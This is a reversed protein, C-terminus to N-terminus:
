YSSGGLGKEQELLVRLEQGHASTLQHILKETWMVSSATQNTGNRDTPAMAYFAPKGGLKIIEQTDLWWSQAVLAIFHPNQWTVFPQYAPRWEGKLNPENGIEFYVVGAEVLLKVMDFQAKDLRGPFQQHQHLRVIPTIGAAILRRYFDPNLSMSKFFKINMAKMEAIWWNPDGPPDQPLAKIVSGHVGRVKKTPPPISDCVEWVRAGMLTRAVRTTKAQQIANEYNWAPEYYVFVSTVTGTLPDIIRLDDEIGD